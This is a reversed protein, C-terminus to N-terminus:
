AREARRSRRVAFSRMADARRDSATWPVRAAAPFRTAEGAGAATCRRARERPPRPEERDHHPDHADASRQSAGYVPVIEGVYPEDGRLERHATVNIEPLL